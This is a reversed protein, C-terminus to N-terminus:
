HRAHHWPADYLNSNNINSYWFFATFGYFFFYKRLAGCIKRNYQEQITKGRHLNHVYLFMEQLCRFHINLQM